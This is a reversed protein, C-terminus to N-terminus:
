CEQVKGQIKRYIYKSYSDKDIPDWDNLQQIRESKHYPIYDM